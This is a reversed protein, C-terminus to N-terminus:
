RARRWTPFMHHWTVAEDPSRARWWDNVHKAAATAGAHAVHVYLEPADLLVLQRMRGISDSDEGLKLEPRYAPVSERRALMTMEWSHLPSTFERGNIRDEITVRLLLSAEALPLVQLAALQRAIRQPHSYDDDDWTAVYEGGALELARQRLEGLQTGRPAIEIQGIAGTEGGIAAFMEDCPDATVIILERDAHSQDFYSALGAPTDDRWREARTVMLCSVLSPPIM